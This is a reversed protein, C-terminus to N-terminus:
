AGVPVTVLDKTVCFSAARRAVSDVWMNLVMMDEAYTARTFPDFTITLGGYQCLVLDNWNGYIMGSLVAGSSAKTMNSPMSSTVATPYGNIEQPGIHPWVMANGYTPTIPTQRLTSRVKGNTLYGLSGKNANATEVLAEMSTVTAWTPVGGNTGHTVSTTGALGLLGAPQGSGTGNIAAQQWTQSAANELDGVVMQEISANAQAKLLWSINTFATLRHPTPSPGALTPTSETSVANEAAWVATAGVTFGPLGLNYSLGLLYTAGLEKFVQRDRLAEFFGLKETAVANSSAAVLTRAEKVPKGSRDIALLNSPLHLAQGKKSEIVALGSTRAEKEGEQCMELELGSLKGAHAERIAKTFSFSRMDKDDKASTQAAPVGSAGAIRAEFLEREEAEIIESDMRKLEDNITQFQTKEEPTLNRNEGRAKALLAAGEDMKSRREQKLQTATKM